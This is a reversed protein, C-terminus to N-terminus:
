LLHRTVNLEVPATWYLWTLRDLRVRQGNIMIHGLYTVIELFSLPFMSHYTATPFM